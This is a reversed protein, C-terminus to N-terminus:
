MSVEHKKGYPNYDGLPKRGEKLALAIDEPRLLLEEYEYDEKIGEEDSIIESLSNIKISLNNLNNLIYKRKTADTEEKLYNFENTYATEYIDKLVDSNVNSRKNNLAIKSINLIIDKRKVPEQEYQLEELEKKYADELSQKIFDDSLINDM